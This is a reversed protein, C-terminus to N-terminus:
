KVLERFFTEAGAYENRNYTDYISRPIVMAGVDIGVANVMENMDCTRLVTTITGDLPGKFNLNSVQGIKM